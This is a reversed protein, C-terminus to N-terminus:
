EAGGWAIRVGEGAFQSELGQEVDDDDPHGDEDGEALPDLGVALHGKDEGEQRDNSKQDKAGLNQAHHRLLCKLVPEIIRIPFSKSIIPLYTSTM